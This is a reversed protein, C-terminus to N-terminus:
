RLNSWEDNSSDKSSLNKLNNITIWIFLFVSVKLGFRTTLHHLCHLCWIESSVSFDMLLLDTLSFNTSSFILSILFHYLPYHFLFSLFSTCFFLPFFSPTYGHFCSFLTISSLLLFLFSHHLKFSKWLGPVFHDLWLLMRSCWLRRKDLVFLTRYITCTVSCKLGDARISQSLTQKIWPLRFFLTFPKHTVTLNIPWYKEVWPWHHKVEASVEEIRGNQFAGFQGIRHWIQDSTRQM